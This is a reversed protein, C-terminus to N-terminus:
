GEYEFAPNLYEPVMYNSQFYLSVLKSWEHDPINGDIRFMKVKTKVKAADPLQQAFRQKWTNRAYVKVAGDLHIFAHTAVNRISHMYRTLVHDDSLQASPSEAVVEEIQLTKLGDQFSWFFETRDYEPPMWQGARSRHVALGVAHPSDLADLRLPPGFSRDKELLLLAHGIPTLRLHDIAVSVRQELHRQHYAWLEALFSYNPNSTFNRRLFQHFYIHHQKYYLTSGHRDASLGPTALSLLGEDSEFDALEPYEKYV